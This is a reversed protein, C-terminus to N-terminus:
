TVLWRTFAHYTVLVALPLIHHSERGISTLRAADSTCNGCCKVCFGDDVPTNCHQMPKYYKTQKSYLQITNEGDLSVGNDEGSPCLENILVTGSEGSFSASPFYMTLPFIKHFMIIM